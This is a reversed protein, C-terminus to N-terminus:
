SLTTTVLISGVSALTVADSFIRVAAARKSKASSTMIPAAAADDSEGVAALKWGAQAAPKGAANM